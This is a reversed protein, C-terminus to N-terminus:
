ATTFQCQFWDYAVGGTRCGTIFVVVDDDDQVGSVTSSSATEESSTLAIEEVHRVIFENDGGSPGIYEIIEIEIHVDDPSWDDYRTFTLSSTITGSISFSCDGPPKGAEGIIGNGTRLVNTIRCFAADASAPATYDTGATITYTYDDSAQVTLQLRQVKFDAM